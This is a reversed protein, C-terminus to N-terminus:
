FLRGIIGSLCMNNHAHAELIVLILMLYLIGPIPTLYRRKEECRVFKSLECRYVFQAFRSSLWSVFLCVSLWEGECVHVHVCM